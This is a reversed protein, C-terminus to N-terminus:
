TNLQEASNGQGQEQQQDKKKKKKVLSPGSKFIVKAKNKHKSVKSFVATTGAIVVRFRKFHKTRRTIRYFQHLKFKFELM